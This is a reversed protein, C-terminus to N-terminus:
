ATRRRRVLLGCLVVLSGAPAPVTTLVDFAVPQPGQSVAEFEGPGFAVDHIFFRVEPATGEYHAAYLGDPRLTYGTLSVVAELPQALRLGFQPGSVVSELLRMTLTPLIEASSREVQVAAHTIDGLGRTFLTNMANDMATLAFMANAAIEEPGNLEWSTNLSPDNPIQLASPAVLWSDSFIWVDGFIVGGAVVSHKHHHIGFPGATCASAGFLVGSVVVVLHRLM